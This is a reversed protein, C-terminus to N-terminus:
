IVITTRHNAFVNHLPVDSGWSKENVRPHSTSVTGGAFNFNRLGEPPMLLTTPGEQRGYLVVTWLARTSVVDYYEVSSVCSHSVLCLAIHQLTKARFTEREQCNPSVM